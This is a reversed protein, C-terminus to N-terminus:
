LSSPNIKHDTTFARLYKRNRDTVNGSCDMRISYKDYGPCEVVIGTRDWKKAQKGVGRQNQVMVHQGLELSPLDRTHESWREAGRHYRHRMGVERAEKCEVWSEMMNPKGLKVPLLDKMRRGFLLMSPSAGLGAMPTNRYQLMAQHIKEWNPSGDSRTNDTLTRKATKVGTEARMNGHPNYSSSTRHSVGWRRLFDETEKARFQPGDDSALQDPIGFRAFIERLFERLGKNTAEGPHYRLCFWGSYRDALILWQKGKETFYDMSIMQFPYEPDEIPRPPLNSNSRANVNCSDCARRVGELDDHLGPWMVSHQAAHYMGTVGQHAMHLVELVEQRLSRPILIRNGSFIVGDLVTFEGMYRKYHSLREANLEQGNIIVDRLELLEEDVDTAEKVRDFTVARLGEAGVKCVEPGLNKEGGKGEEHSLTGERSHPVGEGLEKSCYGDVCSSPTSIAREM